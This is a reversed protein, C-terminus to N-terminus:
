LSQTGALAHKLNTLETTLNIKFNKGLADTTDHYCEVSWTVLFHKYQPTGCVSGNVAAHKM